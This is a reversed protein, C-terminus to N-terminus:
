QTGCYIIIINKLFRKGCFAFYSKNNINNNNKKVDNVM